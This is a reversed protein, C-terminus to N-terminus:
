KTRGMFAVAWARLPEQSDKPLLDAIADLARALLREAESMCSDLAGSEELRAKITPRASEAWDRWADPDHREPAPGPLPEGDRLRVVPRTAFGEVLDHGAPKGLHESGGRWDLCDDVLQFSEGVDEGAGALVELDEDPLGGMRGATVAALSFLAGTKERAIRALFGESVGLDFRAEHELLVGRSLARAAKAYDLIVRPDGDNALGEFFRSLIFDGLLIATKAGWDQNVSRRDRRRPADDVVDDHLLSVLHLLEMLAALHVTRSDVPQGFLDVLSLFFRPRVRKGGTAAVHRLVDDYWEGDPEAVYTECLHDLELLVAPELRHWLADLEKLAGGVRLPPPDLM